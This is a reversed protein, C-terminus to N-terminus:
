KKDGIKIASSVELINDTGKEQVIKYCLYKALTTAAERNEIIFNNNEDLKLIFNKIM